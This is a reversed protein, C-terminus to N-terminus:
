LAGWKTEICNRLNRTARCFTNAINQRSTNWAAAIESFERGALRWKVLERQRQHHLEEVCARLFLLWMRTKFSHEERGEDARLKDDAPSEQEGLHTERGKRRIAATQTELLSYSLFARTRALIQDETDCKAYGLNSLRDLFRQQVEDFVDQCNMGVFLDRNDYFLIRSKTRVWPYWLLLVEKWDGGGRVLEVLREVSPEQLPSHEELPGVNM